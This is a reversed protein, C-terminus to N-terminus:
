HINVDICNLGDYSHGKVVFFIFAVGSLLDNFLCLIKEGDSFVCAIILIAKDNFLARRRTVAKETVRNTFNTNFGIDRLGVNRGAGNAGNASVIDAPELRSYGVLAEEKIGSHSANAEWCCMVTIPCLSSTWQGLM